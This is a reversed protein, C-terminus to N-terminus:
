GNLIAAPRLAAARLAPALAALASMVLATLAIILIDALRVESPIFNIFYIRANLLEAGTLAELAHTLPTLNLALLTGSIVGVLTGQAGKLLGVLTFLSVIRLRSMGMTRLIAIEERREAVQMFLTGVINFSAVAMVMLMALYMVSRIMQIDRYLKGESNLWSSLNVPEPFGDLAAYVLPLASLPDDSRVHLVNPGKLGSLTLAAPLSTLATVSDLQGGLELLGVVRFSQGNLGKLASALQDGGKKLCLVQLTDGVTVNLRRAIGAGVILPPLDPAEDTIEGATLASLPVSLFRELNIVTGSEASLGNLLTPVFDRRNHLIVQLEAAPAVGEIHEKHRLLAAARDADQFYGRSATLRVEPIVSLVREKLEREFGNMASLGVILATVGLAIGVTSALSMFGSLVAKHRGRLFRLALTLSLM